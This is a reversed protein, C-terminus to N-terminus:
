DAPAPGLVFLECTMAPDAQNGSMFGIVPRGTASEVVEVFRPEMIQQWNARQENVVGAHGGANLMAEARTHGGRLICVVLDDELYTRAETPGVGFYRKHLAVLERSVRARVEGFGQRPESSREPM